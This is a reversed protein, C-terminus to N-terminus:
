RLRDLEARAADADPFTPDLRLARELHVKAFAAQGRRSLAMGAHFQVKASKDLVAAAKQLHKSADEIRGARFLLWGLTDLIEPAESLLRAAEAARVAEDLDRDERGLLDALNNLAVPDRPRIRLADRYTDIAERREGNQDLIQALRLRVEPDPSGKAISERYLREADGDNGRFAAIRGMLLLARPHSPENALGRRLADEGDEVRGLSLLTDALAVELLGPRRSKAIREVLFLRAEEFRGQSHLAAAAALAAGYNEPNMEFARRFAAVADEYQGIHVLFDGKIHVLADSDPHATIEGDLFQVAGFSDNRLAMCQAIGLAVSPDGDTRPYVELFMRQAEEYVGKQFLIAAVGLRALLDQPDNELARLYLQEAEDRAPETGRRLLLKALLHLAAMNGPEAELVKRTVSESVEFAGLNAQAGALLLASGSRAGGAEAQAFLNRAAEFDGNRFAEMGLEHRVLALQVRVRRDDPDIRVAEELHGRADDLRGVARLAAALYYRGARDAPRAAVYADLRAVADDNRGEALALKGALYDVRGAAAGLATYQGVSARAALLAEPDREADILHVEAIRLLVEARGADDRARRLAEAYQSLAADRRREELRMYFDGMRVYGDPNEPDAAILALFGEEAEDARGSRALFAFYRSRAEEGPFLALAEKLETEAADVRGASELADALLFCLGAIEPFEKRAAALVTAAVDFEERRLHMAGQLRRLDASRPWARVADRVLRACEQVREAALTSSVANVWDAESAARDDRYRPDTANTLRQVVTVFADSALDARRVKLAAAGLVRLADMPPDPATLAPTLLEVVKEYDGDVLLLRAQWALVEPDRPNVALVFAIHGRATKEDDSMPAGAERALLGEILQGTIKKRLRLSGSRIEFARLYSALAQKRLEEQAESGTGEARAMERALDGRAEHVRYDDGLLAAASEAEERARDFRRLSVLYGVLRIRLAAEEPLAAVGDELAKLANTSEDTEVYLEHLATFVEPTTWRRAAAVLTREAETRKGMRQFFQGLLLTPEPDDPAAAQVIRLQEVAESLDREQQLRVQASIAKALAMRLRRDDPGELRTRCIDEAERFMGAAVQRDQLSGQIVARSMLLDGLALYAEYNGPDLRVAERYADESAKQDGVKLLLQARLVHVMSPTPDEAVAADLQSFAERYDERAEAIEALGVRADDMEGALSLAEEFAAVAEDVLGLQQLAIGLLYHVRPRRPDIRVYREFHARAAEYDRDGTLARLGKDYAENKQREDPPFQRRVVWANAGVLVLVGAVFLGRRVTAGPGRRGRRRHEETVVDPTGDM